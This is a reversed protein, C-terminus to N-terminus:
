WGSRRGRWPTRRVVAHGATVSPEELTPPLLQSSELLVGLRRQPLFCVELPICTGWVFRLSAFVFLSGIIARKKM